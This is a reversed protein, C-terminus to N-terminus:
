KLWPTRIEIAANVSTKFGWISWRTSEKYFIHYKLQELSTYMVHHTTSTLSSVYTPLHVMNNVLMLM